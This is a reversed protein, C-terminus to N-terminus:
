SSKRDCLASAYHALTRQRQILLQVERGGGFRAPMRSCASAGSSGPPRGLSRRGRGPRSPRGGRHHPPQRLLGAALGGDVEAPAIAIRGDAALALALRANLADPDECRRRFCVVSLQPEGLLEFRDDERLLSTLLGAEALIANL